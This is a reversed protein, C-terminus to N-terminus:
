EEQQPETSGPRKDIMTKKLLFLICPVWMIYFHDDPLVNCCKWLLIDAAVTIGLIAARLSIDLILCRKRTLKRYLFYESILFSVCAILPLLILTYKIM